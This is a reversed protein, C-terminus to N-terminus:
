RAATRTVEIRQFEVLLVSGSAFLVEHCLFGKTVASLEDYGWDGFGQGEQYYLPSATPFDVTVRRVGGYSLEWVFQEVADVLRLHVRVPHAHVSVWPRRLEGSPAPRSGDLIALELLESGHIDAERFFYFADESLRDRLADLQARYGAIARDVSGFDANQNQLSAWLERTFFQV